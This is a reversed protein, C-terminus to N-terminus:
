VTASNSQCLYLDCTPNKLKNTRPFLQDNVETNKQILGRLCCCSNIRKPGCGAFSSNKESVAKVSWWSRLFRRTWFSFQCKRRTKSEVLRVAGHCWQAWWWVQTVVGKQLARKGLINKLTLDIGHTPAKRKQPDTYGWEVQLGGILNPEVEM